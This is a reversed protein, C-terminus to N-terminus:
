SAYSVGSSTVLLNIQQVQNGQKSNSFVSSANVEGFFLLLTVVLPLLSAPLCPFFPLAFALTVVLPLLSAPLCPFFPLAFALALTLVFATLSLLTM